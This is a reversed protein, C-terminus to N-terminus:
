NSLVIFYFVLFIKVEDITRIIQAKTEEKLQFANSVSM